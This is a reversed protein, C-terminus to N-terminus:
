LIVLKLAFGKYVMELVVLISAFDKYEYEMWTWNIFSVKGLNIWLIFSINMAVDMSNEIMQMIFKSKHIDFILATAIFIAILM